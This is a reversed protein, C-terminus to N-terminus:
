HADGESEPRRWPFLNGAPSQADETAKKVLTPAVRWTMMRDTRITLTKPNVRVVTGDHRRGEPDNFFVRDGVEFALLAKRQRARHRLDLEEVIRRNLDRLEDDSLKKLDPDNAM